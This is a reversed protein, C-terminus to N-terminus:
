WCPFVYETFPFFMCSMFDDNFMYFSLWLCCFLHFVVVIRRSQSLTPFVYLFINMMASNWIHLECLVYWISHCFRMEVSGWWKCCKSYMCSTCTGWVNYIMTRRDDLWHMTYHGWVFKGFVYHWEHMRTTRWRGNDVSVRSWQWPSYLIAEYLFCMCLYTYRNRSM